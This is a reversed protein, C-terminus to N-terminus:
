FFLKEPIPVIGVKKIETWFEPYSKRVVSTDNVYVDKVVASLIAGAMAIRHDSQVDIKLSDPFKDPYNDVAIFDDGVDIKVGMQDAIAVIAAIRNSEKLRLNATGTIEFPRRKAICALALSPFVDPMQRVDFEVRSDSQKGINRLGVYQVSVTTQVGLKEFYQVLARDGQASHSDLGFLKVQLEPILVVLQYWFAAASWDGEVKYSKEVYHQGPFISIENGTRIVKIGFYQMLGITLDIYPMSRKDGTLTLTLGQEFMPAILLLATAFQSSQSIDIEVDGGKMKTGTITLPAYGMKTDYVIQAGVSKLAHVLPEVPRQQIRDSGTLHWEGMIGSMFAILFRLASGSDQVDFQNSNSNLIRNLVQVDECKSLNRIDPMFNGIAAIMLLRNSVSKSGPLITKIRTGKPKFEIKTM